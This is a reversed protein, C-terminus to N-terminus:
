YIENEDSWLDDYVFECFDFINSICRYEKSHVCYEARFQNLSHLLCDIDNKDLSKEYVEDDETRYIIKVENKKDM